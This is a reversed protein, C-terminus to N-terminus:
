RLGRHIEAEALVASLRKFDVDALVCEVLQGNTARLNVAVGQLLQRHPGALDIMVSIPRNKPKNLKARSGKTKM